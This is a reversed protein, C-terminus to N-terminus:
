QLFAHQLITGCLETFTDTNLYASSVRQQTMGAGYGTRSLSRGPDGGVPSGGYPSLGPNFM